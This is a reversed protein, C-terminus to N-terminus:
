KKAMQPTVLSLDEIMQQEAPTFKSRFEESNMVARRDADALPRMQNLQRNVLAHRPQPLANFQATAQRVQQQKQPSLSQMRNLRDLARALQEPPMKQYDNLRQEIQTRRAPKLAGLAKNRQDPTMKLLKRLNEVSGPNNEQNAAMKEKEPPREPRQPRAAPPKAPPRNVHQGSVDYALCFAAFVPIASTLKM